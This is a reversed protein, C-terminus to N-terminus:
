KYLRTAIRTYAFSVTVVAGVAITLLSFIQLTVSGGTNPLIAVGAVTTGVGTVGAGKGYMYM